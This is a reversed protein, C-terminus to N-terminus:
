VSAIQSTLLTLLPPFPEKLQIRFTTDNLAIFAEKGSVKDSFIWSGSAAIKPDLLRGFSYVFDSAVAKRGTGGKFLPDDHFYVDHRLHFTYQLGDPSIDWSKAIAPRVHLSDDVQVLGNYLQNDMWITNQNRCFAPDLSTLGEDLNINFVTKHSGANDSHCGLACLLFCFASLSICFSFLRFRNM